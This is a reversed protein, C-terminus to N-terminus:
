IARSICTTANSLTDGRKAWWAFGNGSVEVEFRWLVVSVPEFIRYFPEFSAGDEARRKQRKMFVFSISSLACFLLFCRRRLSEFVQERLFHRENDEDPSIAPCRTLWEAL